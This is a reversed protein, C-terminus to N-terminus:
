TVETSMKLCYSGLLLFPWGPLLPLPTFIAGLVLCSSGVGLLIASKNEGWVQSLIDEGSVTSEGKYEEQAFCNGPAIFSFIRDLEANFKEPSLNREEYYIVLANNIPSLQVDKVWDLNILSTELSSHLSPYAKLWNLRLRARGSTKHIIEWSYNSM